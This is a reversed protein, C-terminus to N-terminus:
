GVPRVGGRRLHPLPLAGTCRRVPRDRYVPLGCIGPPGSRCRGVPGLGRRSRCLGRGASKQVARMAPVVSEHTGDYRGAWVRQRAYSLLVDAEAIRTGIPAAATAASACLVAATAGATERWPGPGPPEADAQQSRWPPLPTGACEVLELRPPEGALDSNWRASTEGRLFFGPRPFRAAPLESGAWPHIGGRTGHSEEQGTDTRGSQRPNSLANRLTAATRGILHDRGPAVRNVTVAALREMVQPLFDAPAAFEGGAVFGEPRSQALRTDHGQQILRDQDRDREAGGPRDWSTLIVTRAEISVEDVRTNGRGGQIAIGTVDLRGAGSRHTAVDNISWRSRTYADALRRTVSNQVAPSAPYRVATALDRALRRDDRLVPALSLEPQRVTYGFHNRQVNWNGTQVGWSKDVVIAGRGDPRAAVRMVQPGSTDPFTVRGGSFLPEDPLLKRFVFNAARGEPNDVLSDFAWRLVPRGQLLDDLSVSPDTMKYCYDNLQHSHEGIQVGCSQSIVVEQVDPGLDMKEITMERPHGITLEFHGAEAPRPTEPLATPVSDAASDIASGIGSAIASDTDEFPDPARARHVETRRPYAPVRDPARPIREPSTEWGGGGFEGGRM